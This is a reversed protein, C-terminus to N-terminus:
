SYPACWRLIVKSCQLATDTFLPKLITALTHLINRNAYMEGEGEIDNHATGVGDEDTQDLNPVLSEGCRCRCGSVVCCLERCVGASPLDGLMSVSLDRSAIRTDSEPRGLHWASRRLAYFMLM